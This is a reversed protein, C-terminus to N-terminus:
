VKPAVGDYYIFVHFCANLNGERLADLIGEREMGAIQEMIFNQEEATMHKRALDFACGSTHPPLSGPGRVKFSNPNGKNLSIQYEMSRSLSTVRLPRKFKEYYAKAIRMLIPKARPHFMRLLRIKMQRRHEPNSIDYKMGSFNSALDLLINFDNSGQTVDPSKIDTDFNFSTFPGESSSGGVELVWYDTAMKLEVLEGAKRKQALDAFDMPLVYGAKQMERIKAGQKQFGQYFEPPIKTGPPDLGTPANRPALAISKQKEWFAVSVNYNEEEPINKDTSAIDALDGANVEKEQVEWYQSLEDLDEQKQGGLPDIVRIPIVANPNSRPTPSNRATGGGKDLYAAVLIGILALLIIAFTSGAAVILVIPTEKKKQAKPQAFNPAARTREAPPKKERAENEAGKAIEPTSQSTSKEGISVHITTESGLTVEDGDFLVVPDKGLKKGNLFTGNTSNEDVIVVENEDRFITTNLSSLGADDLRIDALDTRGISIEDELVITESQYATKIELTVKKKM